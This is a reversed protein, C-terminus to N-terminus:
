PMGELKTSHLLSIKWKGQDRILVVSELWKIDTTKGSFSITAQNFYSIWAINEKVKTEIFDIKNIRKFDPISAKRKTVRLALTDINWVQGSELLTIDPSCYSKMKVVDLNALADFFGTVTEQMATQGVPGAQQAKTTITFHFALILLLIYRTM